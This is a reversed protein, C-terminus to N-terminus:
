QRQSSRGFIQAAPPTLRHRPTPLPAPATDQHRPFLASCPSAGRTNPALTRRRLSRSPESSKCVAISEPPPRQLAPPPATTTRSFELSTQPACPIQDAPAPHATSEPPDVRDPFSRSPSCRPSIERTTADTRATM